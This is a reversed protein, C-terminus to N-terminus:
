LPFNLSGRTNAWHINEGAGEGWQQHGRGEPQQTRTGVRRQRREAAQSDEGPTQWSRPHHAAPCVHRGPTSAAWRTRSQNRSTRLPWRPCFHNRFPEQHGPVAEETHRAAQGPKASWRPGRLEPVERHPHHCPPLASTSEDRCRCRSLRDWAVHARLWPSRLVPSHPPKRDQLARQTATPLPSQALNECKTHRGSHYRPARHHGSFWAEEGPWQATRHPHFVCREKGQDDEREQASNEPPLCNHPSRSRKIRNTALLSHEPSVSLSPQVCQLLSPSGWPALRPPAGAPRCPHMHARQRRERQSEEVSCTRVGLYHASCGLLAPPAWHATPAHGTAQSPLRCERGKKWTHTPLLLPRGGRSDRGLSRGDHSKAWGAKHLDDWETGSVAKERERFFDKGARSFRPGAGELM